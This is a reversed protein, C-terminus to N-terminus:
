PAVQHGHKTIDARIQDDTKGKNQPKLRAQALSVQKGTGGATPGANTPPMIGLQIRRNQFQQHIANIAQDKNEGFVRTWIGGPGSYEKEKATISEQEEKDLARADNLTSAKQQAMAIQMQLIGERQAAIDRQAAIREEATQQSTQLAQYKEGLAATAQEAKTKYNEATAQALIARTDAAQQKTGGSVIDAGTQTVDKYLGGKAKMADVANKWNEQATKLSTDTAGLEQERVQERRQYAKNPAGYAEGTIKAPDVAGIIAGPIGGTLAGEIGGRVGRWVRTGLSPKDGALMKGTDKDYLPEKQSLAQEQATLRTVDPDSTPIQNAVQTEKGLNDQLAKMGVDDPDPTAGAGGTAGASAASPTASPVASASGHGQILRAQADATGGRDSTKGQSPGNLIDPNARVQDPDLGMQALPNAASPFQSLEDQDSLGSDWSTAM